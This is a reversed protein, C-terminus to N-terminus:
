PNVSFKEGTGKSAYEGVHPTSTATNAQAAPETKGFFHSHRQKEEKKSKKEEKKDKKMQAEAMLQEFALFDGEESPDRAAQDNILIPGM